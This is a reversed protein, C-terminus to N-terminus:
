LERDALQVRVVGHDLVADVDAARDGRDLHALMQVHVVDLGLAPLSGRVMLSSLAVKRPYRRSLPRTPTRLWTTMRGTSSMELAAASATPLWTLPVSAIGCGYPRSCNPSSRSSCKRVSIPVPQLGLTAAPTTMPMSGPQVPRTTSPMAAVPFGTAPKEMSVLPSMLVMAAAERLACSSTCHAVSFCRSRQEMSSRNTEVLHPSLSVVEPSPEQGVTPLRISLSSGRPAVVQKPSVESSVPASTTQALRAALLSTPSLNM